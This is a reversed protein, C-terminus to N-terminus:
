TILNDNTEERHPTLLPPRLFFDVVLPPLASVFSVSSALSAGAIIGVQAMVATLAEQKIMTVVQAAIVGINAKAQLALILEDEKEQTTADQGDTV